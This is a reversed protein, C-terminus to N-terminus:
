AAVAEAHELEPTYRGRRPAAACRVRRAFVRTYPGLAHANVAICYLIVGSIDDTAGSTTVLLERFRLRSRPTSAAGAPNMRKTMTRTREDGALIGKGSSVLQAATTQLAQMLGAFTPCTVELFL